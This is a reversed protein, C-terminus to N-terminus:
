SLDAHVIFLHLEAPTPPETTTSAAAQMVGGPQAVGGPSAIGSNGQWDFQGNDLVLNLDSGAAIATSSSTLDAHDFAYFWVTGADASYYSASGGIDSWAGTSPDVGALTVTGPLALSSVPFTLNL